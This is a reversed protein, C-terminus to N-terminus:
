INTFEKKPIFPEDYNIEESSILIEPEPITHHVTNKINNAIFNESGSSSESGSEFIFETSNDTESDDNFINSGFHAANRLMIHDDDDSLLISDIEFNIDSNVDTETDSEIDSNIESKLYIANKKIREYYNIISNLLREDSKDFIFDDVKSIYTDILENIEEKFQLITSVSSTM